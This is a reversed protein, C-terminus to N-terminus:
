LVNGSCIMCFNGFFNPEAPISTVEMTKSGIYLNGFLICIPDWCAPRSPFLVLREVLKWQCNGNWIEFSLHIIIFALEHRDLDGRFNTASFRGFDGRSALELLIVSLIVM